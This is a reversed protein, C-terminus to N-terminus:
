RRHHRRQSASGANKHPQGAPSAAAATRTPLSLARMVHAWAPQVDGDRGGSTGGARSTRRALAPLSTMDTGLAARHTAEAERETTERLADLWALDAAPERARSEVLAAVVRGAGGRADEVKEREREREREREKPGSLTALAATSLSVSASLDVRAGTVATVSWGGDEDAAPSRADAGVIRGAGLAEAVAVGASEVLAEASRDGKERERDRDVQDGLAVRAEAGYLLAAVRQARSRALLATRSVTASSSRKIEEDVQDALALAAASASAAPAADGVVLHLYAEVTRASLAVFLLSLRDLRTAACTYRPHSVEKALDTAAARLAPSALSALSVPTTDTDPNPLTGAAPTPAAQLASTLATLESALVSADRSNGRDAGRDGKGRRAGKSAAFPKAGGNSSDVSAAVSAVSALAQAVRPHSASAEARQWAAVVAAVSPRKNMDEAATPPRCMSLSVALSAVQQARRLARTVSATLSPSLPVPATSLSVHPAKAVFLSSTAVTSRVHPVPAAAVRETEKAVLAAVAQAYRLSLSLSQATPAGVMSQALQAEAREPEGAFLSLVGANASITRAYGFDGLGLSIAAPPVTSDPAQAAAATTKAVVRNLLSQALTSSHYAASFSSSRAHVLAANAHYAIRAYSLALPVEDHPSTPRGAVREAAARVSRLLALAKTGNGRAHEHHARLSLSIPGGAEADRGGDAGAGQAAEREAEREAVTKVERKVVKADGDALALRARASHDLCQLDAPSLSLSPSGVPTGVPFPPGFDGAALLFPLLPRPTAKDRERDRQVPLRALAPLLSAAAKAAAADRYRQATSFALTALRVLEDREDASFLRDRRAADVNREEDDKDAEGLAVKIRETAIWSLALPPPLPLHVDTRDAVPHSFSQFPSALSASLLLALLPLPCTAALTLSVSLTASPPAPTPAPAHPVTPFAAVAVAVTAATAADNKMSRRVIISWVLQPTVEQRAQGSGLLAMASRGAEVNLSVPSVVTSTRTDSDLEPELLSRANHFNGSAVEFPIDTRPM